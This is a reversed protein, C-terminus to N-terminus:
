HLGRIAKESDIKDEIRQLRRDIDDKWEKVVDKRVTQQEIDSIRREHDALRDQTEYKLAAWAMVGSFLLAAITLFVQWSKIIIPAKGNENSTSM